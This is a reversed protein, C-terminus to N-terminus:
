NLRKPLTVIVNTGSQDGDSLVEINGGHADVIRKCLSLGLGYGGTNKSRSKDIRYFPEFIFPVELTPIGIGYDRVSIRVENELEVLSIVVDKRVSNRSYKLANEVLNRILTVIQAPDFYGRIESSSTSFTLRTSEEQYLDLHHRIISVFDYKQLNIAHPSHALRANELLETVMKEMESIDRVLNAKKAGETLLETALKMRTLPSRLEHSVDTLLQEKASIMKQIRSAMDNIAIALLGLEKSSSPKIRYELKGLGIAEVGRTLERLPSMLARIALYVLGLMGSMLSLLVAIASPNPSMFGFPPGYFTYIANGIQFPGFVRPPGKHRFSESHQAQDLAETPVKPLDPRSSFENGPWVIRVDFGKDLAIARALDTKPPDGIQTALGIFYQSTAEKMLRQASQPPVGVRRIGMFVAINLAFCFTVIIIILRLFISSPWLRRM